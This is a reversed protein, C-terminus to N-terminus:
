ICCLLRMFMLIENTSKYFMGPLMDVFGLCRCLQPAWNYQAFVSLLPLIEEKYFFSVLEYTMIFKLFGTVEWINQTEIGLKNKWDILLKRAKAKVQSNIKPSTESLQVLLLLYNKLVNKNFGVHGKKMQESYSWQIMDLVFKAPDSTRHLAAPAEIRELVCAELRENVSKQVNVEDMTNQRQLNGIDCMSYAAYNSTALLCSIFGDALLSITTTLYLNWLKCLCYCSHIIRFMM